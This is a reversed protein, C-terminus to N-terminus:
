CSVRFLLRISHLVDYLFYNGTKLLVLLLAEKWTGPKKHVVYSSLDIERMKKIRMKRNRLKFISMLIMDTYAIQTRTMNVIGEEDLLHNKKLLVFVRDFELKGILASEYSKISKSLSNPRLRDYFYKDSAILVVDKIGLLYSYVFISDEGRHVNQKFRLNQQNIITSNFLKGWPAPGYDFKYKKFLLNFDKSSLYTRKEVGLVEYEIIAVFDSNYEKVCFFLENLYDNDVYDDSDIFTIWEGCANDLGLNRASSVGGNPKHFVRVREDKTAYEDCIRGCSDPSGDDILLLEFDTFSQSLISDICRHLYNEVKYVPVIVSIVPNM